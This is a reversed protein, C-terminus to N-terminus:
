VYQPLVPTRGYVLIFLGQTESIFASMLNHALENLTTLRGTKEAQDLDDELRMHLM